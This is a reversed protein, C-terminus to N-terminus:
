SSGYTWLKPMICGKKTLVEAWPATSWSSPPAEEILMFPALSCADQAVLAFALTLYKLM